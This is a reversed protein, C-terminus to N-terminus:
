SVVTNVSFIFGVSMVYKVPRSNADYVIYPKGLGEPFLMGADTPQFGTLKDMVLDIVQRVSRENPGIVSVEAYSKGVDQRPGVIGREGSFQVMSSYNVVIYPLLVNTPSYKLSKDEPVGNDYVDQPLTKLQTTIEDHIPLLSLGM